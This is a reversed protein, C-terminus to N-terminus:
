RDRYRRATSCRGFNIAVPATATGASRMVFALVVAYIVLM